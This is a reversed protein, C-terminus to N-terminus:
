IRNQNIMDCKVPYSFCFRPLLFSVQHHGQKTAPSSPKARAAARTWAPPLTGGAGQWSGAKRRGKDYVVFSSVM